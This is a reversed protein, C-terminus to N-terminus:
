KSSKKFSLNGSYTIGVLTGFNNGRLKGTDFAIRANVSLGDVLASANWKITAMASNDILAYNQPVRGSGWAEQWSYKLSYDWGSAFSGEVAVHIGRARNHAFAPFGNLNYLPAVPFPSGIGLGYNAYRCYTENNYYDDGGTAHSTNTTGPFDVPAWHIPGCQDTFDLYEIAAATILGKGPAKYYLGWLGDWGNRRGIGSGDEWPWQFAFSIEHGSKLLYRAKFDWSGLSNGEYFGDKTDGQIPFFMRFVDKLHFGRIESSIIKGNNYRWTSGGFQGATQMGLTVSFRQSPKTRFYCRKYTYWLDSTLIYNYYNFQDHTFGDDTFRGYEIVGDIQVWGNTFPINQFDIFGIEAGPIPRANSSRTLDGSSVKEDLIASHHEKQGVRLFVSRYKIEAYLQQIWIPAPRNTATTWSHDTENWRDYTASASYGTLIEAGAGWSFRKSLDFPVSAKLDLLASSSRASRGGNLSGIFYPAFDGTSGQGFVTAEYDVFSQASACSPVISLMCIKLLSRISKM